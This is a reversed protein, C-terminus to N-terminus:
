SEQISKLYQSPTCGKYKKFSSIFSNRNNFGCKEGIAELTIFRHDGSEIKLCCEEIRRSNILEPFTTGMNKNIYQTLLYSPIGTDQALDHISYGNELFRHEVELVRSIHTQIEHSKEESLGENGESKASEPKLSSKYKPEDLGYLIKPFFLVTVSNVLIVIAAPFHILDYYVQSDSFSSFIIFPLFLILGSFQYIKMWTIWQNGFLVAKTEMSKSQKSLLRMSLIWYVMILITRGITYANPPFFRSQNFYVFVKPNDIESVILAYKEEVPLLFIPFFDIVYLIVPLFHIWELNSLKEGSIVRKIYLYALPAFLLAGINGTRYLIPVLKFYGSSILFAFLASYALLLFSFGIIRNAPQKKWGYTILLISTLIGVFVSFLYILDKISLVFEM